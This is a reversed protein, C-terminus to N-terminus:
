GNRSLHSVLLRFKKEQTILVLAAFSTHNNCESIRNASNFIEITIKERIKRSINNGFLLLNTCLMEIKASDDLSYEQHVINYCKTMRSTM